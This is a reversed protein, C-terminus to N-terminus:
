TFHERRTYLTAVVFAMVAMPVSMGVVVAPGAEPSAAWAAIVAGVMVALFFASLAMAMTYGWRQLTLVGWLIGASIATTVFRGSAFLFFTNLALLVLLAGFVKDGRVIAKIYAWSGPAEQGAAPPLSEVRYSLDEPRIDSPFPSTPRPARTATGGLPRLDGSAQARGCRQCEEEGAPMESGCFACRGEASGSTTM